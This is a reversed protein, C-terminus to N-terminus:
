DRIMNVLQFLPRVVGDAIFATARGVAQLIPKVERYVLWIVIGILILGVIDIVSSSVIFIDRLQVLDM